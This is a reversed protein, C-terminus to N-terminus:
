KNKSKLSSISLKIQKRLEMLGSVVMEEYSQRHGERFKQVVKSQRKMARLSKEEKKNIEKQIEIKLHVIQNGKSAGHLRQSGKGRLMLKTDPNWGKPVKMRQNRAQDV